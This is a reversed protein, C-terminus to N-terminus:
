GFLMWQQWWSELHPLGSLSFMVASVFFILIAIKSPIVKKDSLKYILAGSIWLPALVIIGPGAIFGLISIALIRMYGRYYSYVMFGAYYVIENSLSWFPGNTGPVFFTTHVLYELVGFSTAMLLGAIYRLGIQSTGIDLPANIYHDYAFRWGIYDVIATLMLAPIVVSYLRSFRSIAFSLADRERTEAVHAIVFGSLVFFGIVAPQGFPVVRWFIGGSYQQSGIHVFLVTVSLGFRLLDLYLSLSLSMM